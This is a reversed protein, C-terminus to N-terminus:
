NSLLFLQQVKTKNQKLQIGAKTCKSLNETCTITEVEQTIIGEDHRLSDVVGTLLPQQSPPALTAHRSRAKKPVGWIITNWPVLKQKEMPTKSMVYNDIYM